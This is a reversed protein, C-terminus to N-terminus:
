IANALYENPHYTQIIPIIIFTARKQEGQSNLCKLQTKTKTLQTGLHNSMATLMFSILFTFSILFSDGHRYLFVRQNQRHPKHDFSFSPRKSLISITPRRRRRRKPTTCEAQANAYLAVIDFFLLQILSPWWVDFGLHVSPM